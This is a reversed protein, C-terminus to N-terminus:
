EKTIFQVLKDACEIQFVNWENDYRNQATPLLVYLKNDIHWQKKDFLKEYNIGYDLLKASETLDTEKNITTMFRKDFEAEIQTIIYNTILNLTYDNM